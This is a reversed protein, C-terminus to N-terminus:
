KWEDGIKVLGDLPQQWFYAICEEGSQLNVKGRKYLTPHGELRDLRALGEEPINFLEGKISIGNKSKVLCPFAGASYLEYEPLTVVEKVFNDYGIVRNNGFNRKLTGYCLVNIRRKETKEETMTPM